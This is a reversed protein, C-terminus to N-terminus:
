ALRDGPATEDGRWPKMEFVGKNLIDNKEVVSIGREHLLAIAARFDAASLFRDTM